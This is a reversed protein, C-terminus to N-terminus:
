GGAGEGPRLPPPNSLIKRIDTLVNETRLIIDDNTFRLVTLGRHNLYETREADYAPNDNEQHVFGDAEVVLCYDHCYFDVIYRGIPHQRRFKFGLQKRGRLHRWLVSEAETSFCRNHRAHNFLVGRAKFHFPYKM